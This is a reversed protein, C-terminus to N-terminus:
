SVWDCVEPGSLLPWKSRLIPYGLLEIAHYGDVCFQLIRGRSAFGSCDRILDRVLLFCTLGEM